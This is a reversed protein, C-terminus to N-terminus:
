ICYHKMEGARALTLVVYRRAGELVASSELSSMLVAEWYDAIRGQVCLFIYLSHGRIVWYFRRPFAADGHM